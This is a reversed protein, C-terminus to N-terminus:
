VNHKEKYTKARVAKNPVGLTRERTGKFHNLPSSSWYDNFSQTDRQAERWARRAAIRRQARYTMNYRM